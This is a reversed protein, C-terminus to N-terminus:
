RPSPSRRVLYASGGDVPREGVYEHGRMGCWAPVDLRAAEDDSLVAVVAGVDVDGILKALEIVPVPCRRGRVDVVAAAGLGESDTV